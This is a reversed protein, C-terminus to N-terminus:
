VTQTTALGVTAKQGWGPNFFNLTGTFLDSTATLTVWNDTGDFATGACQLTAEASASGVAPHNRWDTLIAPTGGCIRAQLAADHPQTLSHEQHASVILDGFGASLQVEFAGSSTLKTFPLVNGAAVELNLAVEYVSAAGVLHDEYFLVQYPPSMTTPYIRSLEERVLAVGAAFDAPVFADTLFGNVYVQGPIGAIGIGQTPSGEDEFDDVVLGIRDHFQYTVQPDGGGAGGTDVLPLDRALYARADPDGHLLHEFYAIMATGAARQAEERSITSQGMPGADTFAYHDAGEVYAYHRPRGGPEYIAISQGLTTCSCSDKAGWVVQTPAMGEYLTRFTEAQGGPLFNPCAALMHIADIDLDATPDLPGYHEMARLLSMAGHSHGALAVFEEDVKGFLWHTPDADWQLTVAITAHFLDEHKQDYSGVGPSGWDGVHDHDASVVVFGRSALRSFITDYNDSSSGGAHLFFIVPYPAGVSAVPVDQGAVDAPYHIMLLHPITVGAGVFTGQWFRYGWEYRGPEFWPEDQASAPAAALALLLATLRAAM